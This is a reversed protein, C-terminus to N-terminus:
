REGGVFSQALEAEARRLRYSLTSRPLDLEEALEAVTIERPTEYYGREVAAAMAEYHTYPLAPRGSYASLWASEDTVQRLDFRVGAGAATRIVDSLEGLNADSPMLVHWEYRPGHRETAFLVGPGLYELALHPISRCGETRTWGTFLIRTSPDRHLAEVRLDRGCGDAGFCDAAHGSEAYAAEARELAETPGTLRDVRWCHDPVVACALSHGYLDSHARFADAVPDAGGEYELAFSFARM